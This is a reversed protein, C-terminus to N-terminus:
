KDSRLNGRALAIIEPDLGLLQALALADSSRAEDTAAEDIRYDMSRALAALAADLDDTVPRVPIGRLGRVAFHQAGAAKAVGALHTAAFLHAGHSRASQMLAVLLAFGEHPTTTRGLEDVLLLTGPEIATFADRVRVVERAFSSLLGGREEDDSGIGLWRVRPPIALSARKAPVPLGMMACLATFGITRLAVSKGGMNPGTLVAAGSWHISLPCIAGGQEELREQLPPWRADELTFAAGESLEPVSCAFAQSLRAAALLIDIEGLAATARALEASCSRIQAALAARVREEALAVERASEDRQVLRGRAEDDLELECLYYTAAERVVHVGPPLTGPLADRMVIFEGQARVSAGLATAVRGELRGRSSEFRARREEFRERTARLEDDFSDDLYFAQTGVRGREFLSQLQEIAASPLRPLEANEGLLTAIETLGDIFRLMELAQPDELSDGVAVRALTAAIDPLRRLTSRVADICAPTLKSAIGAIRRAHAMAAAEEGVRFTRTIRAEREGYPSQPALRGFLWEADLAVATVPDLVSAPIM